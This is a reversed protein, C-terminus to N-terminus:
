LEQQLYAYGFGRLFYFVHLPCCRPIEQKGKSVIVSDLTTTFPTTFLCLASLRRDGLCGNSHPFSSYSGFNFGMRLPIRLGSEVASPPCLQINFLSYCPLSVDDLDVLQLRLCRQRGFQQVYDRRHMPNHILLSQLSVLACIHYKSYNEDLHYAVVVIAVSASKVATLFILNGASSLVTQPSETLVLARYQEVKMGEPAGSERASM